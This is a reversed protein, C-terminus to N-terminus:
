LAIEVEVDNPLAVRNGPVNAQIFNAKVKLSLARGISDFVPTVQTIVIRPEWRRVAELVYARGLEKALTGKRHKVLALKSGFDTRWDLEGQTKASEAVTGLIQSLAARVNEEGGATAFDNKQDRVLPHTLGFGLFADLPTTISPDALTGPAVPAAPSPSIDYSFAM